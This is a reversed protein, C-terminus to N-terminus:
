ASAVADVVDPMPPPPSTSLRRATPHTPLYAGVGKAAIGLGRRRRRKHHDKWEDGKVTRSTTSGHPLFMRSANCTDELHAAARPARRHRRPCTRSTTCYGAPRAMTHTHATM